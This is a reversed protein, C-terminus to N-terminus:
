LIKFIMFFLYNGNWMEGKDISFLYYFIFWFIIVLVLM